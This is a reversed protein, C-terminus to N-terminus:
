KGQLWNLFADPDNRKIADVLNDKLDDYLTKQLKGGCICYEAFAPYENKCKPCIKAKTNM